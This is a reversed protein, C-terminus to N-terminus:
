EFLSLFDPDLSSRLESVKSNSSSPQTLVRRRRSETGRTVVLTVGHGTGPRGGRSQKDGFASEEEVVGLGKYSSTKHRTQPRCIATSGRQEVIHSFGMSIPATKSSEEVLKVARPREARMHPNSLSPEPGHSLWRSAKAIVKSNLEEPSRLNRLNATHKLARQPPFCYKPLNRPLPLVWKTPDNHLPLSYPKPEHPYYHKPKM